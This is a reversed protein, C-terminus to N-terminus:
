AAMKPQEDAAVNIWHRWISKVYEVVYRGADPDHDNQKLPEDEGREQAKDDWVYGQWEALGGPYRAIRRSFLLRKLTLLTAVDRIGTLVSGPSRDAWALRKIRKSNKKYKQLYVAFSQADAPIVICEPTVQLSELWNELDTALDPDSRQRRKEKVDWRWRDVFYLKNNEGLGLLWFTTVSGTGYDVGVWHKLMKPLEDAVHVDEDLMDYIAGEAAVWLGLIYRKYFVGAFTRKAREKAKQSLTLNDDLTFHLHLIHKEHAKLIYETNVAHNPSEPNCNWWFLSNPISLLRGLAQTIFEPHHLAVEDALWGAATLGQVVDQSAENDTGFLYYTNGRFILYNESRNYEYAIRLAKLIQLMPGIVNRKLAGITRGSIIFNYGGDAFEHISWLIFSLIFVITKGSRISGDAIIGDYGAYPSGSRWWSLVKKQKRSMPRFKFATVGRRM